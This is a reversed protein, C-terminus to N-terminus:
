KRIWQDRGAHGVSWEYNRKSDVIWQSFSFGIWSTWNVADLFVDLGAKKNTSSLPDDMFQEVQTETMIAYKSNCQVKAGGTGVHTFDPNFDKRRNMYRASVANDQSVHALHGIHTHTGNTAVM